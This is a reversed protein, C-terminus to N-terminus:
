TCPAITDGRGSKSPPHYPFFTRARQRRQPLETEGDSAKPEEKKGEEESLPPPPIPPELAPGAFLLSNNSLETMWFVEKWISPRAAEIATGKEEGRLKETRKRQAQLFDAFEQEICFACCGGKREEM